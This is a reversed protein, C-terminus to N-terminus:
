FFIKFNFWAATDKVKSKPLGSLETTTSSKEIIMSVWKSRDETIPTGTNITFKNVTIDADGNLRTTEPWFTLFSGNDALRISTFFAAMGGNVRKNIDVGAPIADSDMRGEVYAVQPFFMVNQWPSTVLGIAGLAATTMSDNTDIIDLSAGFKPMYQMGTDMSHFYRFRGKKYDGEKDMEGEVIGMFASGGFSEGAATGTAKVNGQNSLGITMTTNVKTLDAPDVEEGAAFVSPSALTAAM